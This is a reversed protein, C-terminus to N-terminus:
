EEESRALILLLGIVMVMVGVFLFLGPYTVISWETLSMSTYTFYSVIFGVLLLLLGFFREGIRLGV